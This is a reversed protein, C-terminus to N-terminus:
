IEFSEDDMFASDVLSCKVIEGNIDYNASHGDFVQCSNFVHIDYM